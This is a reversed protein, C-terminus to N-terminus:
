IFRSPEFLLKSFYKRFNLFSKWFIEKGFIFQSRSFRKWFCTEKSFYKGSALTENRFDFKCKSFHKRYFFNWFHGFNKFFYICESFFNGFCVFVKFFIQNCFYDKMRFVIKSFYFLFWFIGGKICIGIVIWFGCCYCDISLGCGGCGV